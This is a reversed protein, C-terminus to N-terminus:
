NTIQITESALEYTERGKIHPFRRCHALFCEEHIRSSQYVVAKDGDKVPKCCLPCDNPCNRNQM